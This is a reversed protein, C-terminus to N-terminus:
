SSTVTKFAKYIAVAFLRLSRYIARLSRHLILKLKSITRLTQTVTQNHAQPLLLIPTEEKAAVLSLIKSIDRSIIEGSRDLLLLQPYRNASPNIINSSECFVFTRTEQSLRATRIGNPLNVIREFEDPNHEQLQRLM